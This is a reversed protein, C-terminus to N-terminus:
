NIKLEKSLEYPDKYINIQTNDNEFYVIKQFDPSFIKVKESLGTEKFIFDPMMGLVTAGKAFSINDNNIYISDSICAGGIKQNKELMTVDYKDRSLYNSIVLGNVGAGVVIAKKQVYIKNKM